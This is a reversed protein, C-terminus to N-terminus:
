NDKKPSVIKNSVKAKESADLWDEIGVYIDKLEEREKEELKSADDALEQAQKQAASFARNMCNKMWDFLTKKATKIASQLMDLTEKQEEIKEINKKVITVSKKHKEEIFEDRSLHKKKTKEKSVGRVFGVNKFSEAALGQFHKFDKKKLSRWPSKKTEFDFNYFLVHAHINRKLDNKVHGEDLHFKFGIPELGYENKMKLMYDEMMESLKKKLDDPDHTRELEEFQELSFSMVADVFTTADKRVNKGTVKLREEHISKYRRLLGFDSGFNNKTHEEFANVNKKFLRDVHGMEGASNSHKYYKSNVSIFNKM